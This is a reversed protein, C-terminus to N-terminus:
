KKVIALPNALGSYSCLDMKVTGVIVDAEARIPLKNEDDSIWVTMDDENKFVRGKLLTPCFKLCRFTGLETKITEKGLYKYSFNNIEDDLYTNLTFVDGVKANTYDLCRAYYYTSALDQVNDPTAIEAKESKAKDQYQYFVVNQHCKYKGEEINRLFLWPVIAQQDIYSDYRSRVKFFLDFTSNSTGTGVIHFVDRTGIKKDEKKVEVTATGANVIGYHVRFNLVEGKKFAKNEITRLPKNQSIAEYSFAGILVASLIIRGAMKLETKM